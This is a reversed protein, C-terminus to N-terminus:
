TKRIVLINSITDKIYRAWIDITIGCIPRRKGRGYRQESRIMIKLFNKRYSKM